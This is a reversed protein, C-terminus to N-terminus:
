LKSKTYFSSRSQASDNALVFYTSNFIKNELVHLVLLDINICVLIHSTPRQGLAIWIVSLIECIVNNETDYRKITRLYKECLYILRNVNQTRAFKRM